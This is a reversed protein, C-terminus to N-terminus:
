TIMLTEMKTFQLTTGGGPATTMTGLLAHQFHRACWMPGVEGYGTETALIKIETIRVQCM